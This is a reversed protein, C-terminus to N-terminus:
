PTLATTLCAMHNACTPDSICSILADVTVDSYVKITDPCDAVSDESCPSDGAQECFSTVAPTPTVGALVANACGELGADSSGGDTGLVQACTAATECGALATVYDSRYLVLTGPACQCGADPGADLCTAERGCVASCYAATAGTQGAPSDGADVTFAGAGDASTSSDATAGADGAADASHSADGEAADSAADKGADTSSHADGSGADQAGSSSDEGPTHADTTADLPTAADDGSADSEDTSPSGSSKSSCGVAAALILALGM